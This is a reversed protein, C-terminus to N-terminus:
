CVPRKDLDGNHEHLWDILPKHLGASGTVAYVVGERVEIKDVPRSSRVCGSTELSDAAVYQGDWAIVTM